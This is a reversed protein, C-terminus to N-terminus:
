FLCARPQQSVRGIVTTLDHFGKPFSSGRASAPPHGKLSKQDRPGIQAARGLLPRRVRLRPCDWRGLLGVPDKHSILARRLLQKLFESAGKALLTLTVAGVSGEHGGTIASGSLHLTHVGCTECKRPGLSIAVPVEDLGAAGAAERSTLQARRPSGKGDTRRSCRSRGTM